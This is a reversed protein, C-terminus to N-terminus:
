FEAMKYNWMIFIASTVLTAVKKRFIHQETWWFQVEEHSPGVNIVGDVRICKHTTSNELSLLEDKSELM